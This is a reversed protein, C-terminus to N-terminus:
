ELERVWINKYQVPSGHDQLRIPLKGHPKYAPRKKHATPGTLTEHNQILVGNHVVTFQAKEVVKGDKFRPRDYFIDYTQWESPGRTANVLPPYQGYLAGCMGDAYTTNKYTNLVQVEYRKGFFVGSNGSDQGSKDKHTNTRFEIHLQCDGFSQKTGLYGTKVNVEMVGDVVRWKAASGDDHQWKSLGSGDFLVVADSPAPQPGPYPGPDVKEPKPRDKSHIKHAKVDDRDAASTTTTLMLLLSLGALSLTALRMRPAAFLVRVTTLRLM